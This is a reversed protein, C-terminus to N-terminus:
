RNSGNRLNNEVFKMIDHGIRQDPHKAIMEQAIRGAKHLKNRKLYFDALAYLYELNDPEIGLAASLAAEAESDKKLHQLLLGLNYHIRARNPLGASAVKLHRASEEYQKKEALLLGLSYHVDYLEPHTTVVERLLNEAEDKKNMRNSLM